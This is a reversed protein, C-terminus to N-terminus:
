RKIAQLLEAQLLFAINSRLDSIGWNTKASTAHIIPSSMKYTKFKKEADRFIDILNNEHIKDCKTFVVLFPKMKKELIEFLM